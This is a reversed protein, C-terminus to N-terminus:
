NIHSDTYKQKVEKIHFGANLETEGEIYFGTYKQTVELVRYVDLWPQFEPETRCIFERMNRYRSQSDAKQGSALAKMAMALRLIYGNHRRLAKWHAGEPVATLVLEMQCCLNVIEGMRRAMDPNERPGKGNLYDCSSLCSLEELYEQALQPEGPYAAEFYERILEEVSVEEDLLTHGMVYNPLMNPSCARLEQCSIYGELGMSHLKKIDQSIIRAIHLYGFDGYHARGLPYDYVFGEGSFQKQWGKLFALNEGLSTPLTIHNPVYAPIEERVDSLDYSKEFTRSIPAFMLVFRDPNRLREKVAPWLLEQYLLFVVKASLGEATLRRDIENLLEVYQDSVTTKRCDACECVNNYEDALWVHLYDVARNERAYRVVLDAFTETARPKSFCLNTNTPIGMYLERKGNIQAAMPQKEPTLYENTANWSGVTRSGLVEGTWGHGVKHLLLGRLKMAEEFQKTVIRADDMSYAEAEALPNLDHHYWRSLFIYPVQFQLFFSNYGVKPLWDIFDLVNEVSNAGEICVGRHKFSARKTYKSPLQERAITPVVETEKVPTLFRCGLHHLYDYVGLLVSRPNNGTICGGSLEMDVSFGDVANGDPEVGLSVSFVGEEDELMQLLYRRLEDAAFSVTQEINRVTLIIEM